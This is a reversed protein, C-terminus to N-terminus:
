EMLGRGVYLASVSRKVHLIRSTHSNLPTYLDNIGFEGSGYTKVLCFLVSM